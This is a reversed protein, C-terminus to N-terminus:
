GALRDQNARRDPLTITSVGRQRFMEALHQHCTFFLVQQHRSAQDLLLDIAAQTREEDFNVLIDDLVVPLEAGQDTFHEILALRIALFLQERTGGSLHEVILTNGDRDDVCLSHEGLPTWLNVYRGGSLWELHAKARALIPPQHNREFETRLSELTQVSWDLAFWETALGSMESLIQERDFRLEASTRDSELLEIERKFRGLNEFADELDIVVDDLERRITKICEGNQSGDYAELDSEVIAVTRETSAVLNLERRAHDLQEQIVLRQGLSEAREAFDERSVAGGRILIADRRTELRRVRTRYQIYQRRCHRIMRRLRTREQRQEALQMLEERWADLIRLPNLEDDADIRGLRHNLEAIRHRLRECMRRALQTDSRLADIRSILLVARAVLNHQLLASDVDVTEDLGLELIQGCWTQRALGFDRQADRLQQRMVILRPRAAEVRSELRVARELQALRDLGTRLLEAESQSQTDSEDQVIHLSVQRVPEPLTGAIRLRLNSAQDPVHTSSYPHRAAHESPRQHEAGIGHSANPSVRHMADRAEVIRLDLERLESRLRERTQRVQDRFHRRLAVSSGGCCSGTLLYGFGSLGNETLGTLVGLIGLIVGFIGLASFVAYIWQPLEPSIALRDLQDATGIRRQTLEIERLRLRSLDELQSLESRTNAIATELPIGGFTTRLRDLEERRLHFRRSTRRYRQQLQQTRQELERFGRGRTTLSSGSLHPAEIRRLKEESWGAGLEQLCRALHGRLLDVQQDAQTSFDQLDAIWERQDVLSQMVPAYRRVDPHLSIQRAQEGAQRAEHRLQRRRSRIAALETEIAELDNLGDVPFDPLDPLRSLQHELARVRKWPEHVRELYEHGHLQGELGQQRQKLEVITDEWRDQEVRLQDYRRRTGAQQELAQDLEAVRVYLDALHGTAQSADLLNDRAARVESILEILRRGDLGLSMSYIQAAVEHDSLTALEQLEYLGIAFVNEYISESVDATMEALVDASGTGTVDGSEARWATLRGHAGSQGARQIVWSEADHDVQLSGGWAGAAGDAPRGADEAPFGYLIGRIFRMLTTKGAENPGYFVSVGHPDVPLDLNRWAGYREIHIRELKM